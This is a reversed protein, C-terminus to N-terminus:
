ESGREHLPESRLWPYVEHPEPPPLERYGPVMRCLRRLWYQSNENAKVGEHAELLDIAWKIAEEDRLMTLKANEDRLSEVVNCAIRVERQLDKLTDTM